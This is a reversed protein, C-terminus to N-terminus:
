LEQKVAEKFKYNFQKIDFSEVSERIELSNYEVGNNEFEDIANQLNGREYLIGTKNQNIHHSTFGEDVGIVPTGSALSEVPVIGFDEKYTPMITCKANKLLNIKDKESVYGKFEINENAIKELHKKNTGTGAIILKKDPNLNFVNIADEIRKREELRSIILYFDRKENKSVISFDDINIPPHIVISNIGWYQEIRKQVVESNTIYLDTFPLTHHILTRLILSYIRTIRSKGEKSYYDYATHPPHHVYRIIRQGERPVYWSAENGSFIITEYDYLEPRYQWKWFHYLDRLAGKRNFLSSFKSNFLTKYNIDDESLAKDKSLGVYLPANFCRAINEAVREAGGRTSLNGHVVAIEKSM